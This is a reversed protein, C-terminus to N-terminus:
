GDRKIDTTRLSEAMRREEERATRWRLVADYFDETAEDLAMVVPKIPLEAEDQPRRKLIDRLTEVAEYHRAAAAVADRRRLTQQQADVLFTPPKSPVASM